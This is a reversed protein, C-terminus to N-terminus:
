PSPHMPSINTTYCYLQPLAMPPKLNAASLDDNQAMPRPSPSLYGDGVFEERFLLFGSGPHFGQQVLELMSFFGLHEFDQFGQGGLALGIGQNQTLHELAFDLIKLGRAFM